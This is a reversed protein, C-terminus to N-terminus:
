PKSKYSWIWFPTSILTYLFEVFESVGKSFATIGNYIAEKDLDNNTARTTVDMKHTLNSLEKQAHAVAEDSPIYPGTYNNFIIKFKRDGEDVDFVGVLEYAGKTMKTM